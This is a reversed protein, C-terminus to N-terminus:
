RDCVQKQERGQVELVRRKGGQTLYLRLDRDVAPEIGPTETPRPEVPVTTRHPPPVAEDGALPRDQPDHRLM